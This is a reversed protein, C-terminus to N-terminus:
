ARARRAARNAPQPKDGEYAKIADLVIAASNELTVDGRARGRMLWTVDEDDILVSDVIDYAMEVADLSREPTTTKPDMKELKRLISRWAAIQEPTPLRAAMTRGLFTVTKPGTPAADVVPDTPAASEDMVTAVPRAGARKAVRKTAKAPKKTETM